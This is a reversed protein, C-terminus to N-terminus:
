EDDLLKKKKDKKSKKSSKKVTKKKKGSKKLDKKASKKKKDSKKLDKKASKKGATKKTIKKSKSKNTQGKCIEQFKAKSAGTVKGNKHYHYEKKTYDCHGGDSRLKGPHGFLIGSFLFVAAVIFSLLKLKM